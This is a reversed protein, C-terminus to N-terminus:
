NIFYGVVRWEDNTKRVTVTELAAKKNQFSTELDVVIYEGDPAGPLSNYENSTKVTRKLTKGLPTRVKTLAQEWEKTSLQRQFMPGSQNWSEAYKGADVVKLWNTALDVAKPEDAAVSFSLVAAFVVLFLRKM